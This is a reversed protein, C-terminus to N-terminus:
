RKHPPTTPRLGSSAAMSHLALFQRIAVPSRAAPCRSHARTLVPPEPPPVPLRQRERRGERSPTHTRVGGRRSRLTLVVCPCPGGETDPERSSFRPRSYSRCWPRDNCYDARRVGRTGGLARISSTLCRRPPTGYRRPDPRTHRTFAETDVILELAVAGIIDWVARRVHGNFTVRFAPERSRAAVANALLSSGEPLRNAVPTPYIRIAV